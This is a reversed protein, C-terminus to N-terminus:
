EKASILIEGEKPSASFRYIGPEVYVAMVQRCTALAIKVLPAWIHHPLGTIDLYVNKADLDAFLNKL